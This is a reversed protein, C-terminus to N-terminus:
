KFNELSCMSVVKGYRIIEDFMYGYIAQDLGEIELKIGVLHSTKRKEKFLPIANKLSVVQEKTLNELIIHFDKNDNGNQHYDSIIAFTNM